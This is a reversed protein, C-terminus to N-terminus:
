LAAACFGCPGGEACGDDHMAEREARIRAREEEVKKVTELATRNLARDLQEYCGDDANHPRRLMTSAYGEGAQHRRWRELAGTLEVVLGHGACYHDRQGSVAIIASEEPCIVTGDEGTFQCLVDETGESIM